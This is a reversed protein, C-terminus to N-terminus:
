RRVCVGLLKLVPLSLFLVIMLRSFNFGKSSGETQGGSNSIRNTESAIAVEEVQATVPTQEDQVEETAPSEPSPVQDSEETVDTLLPDL